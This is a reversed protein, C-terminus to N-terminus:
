RRLASKMRQVQMTLKDTEPSGGNGLDAGNVPKNPLSAGAQKFNLKERTRKAVEKFSGDTDLGHDEQDLAQAILGVIDAHPELDPNDKFFQHKLKEAEAAAMGHGEMHPLMAEIVHKRDAELLDVIHRVINGPDANAASVFQQIHPPLDSGSGGDEATVETGVEAPTPGGGMGVQSEAELPEELAEEGGGEAPAAMSGDVNDAITPMAGAPMPSEAGPLSAGGQAPAMAAMLAEMPSPM